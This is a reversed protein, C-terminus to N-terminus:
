AARREQEAVPRLVGDRGLQCLQGEVVYRAARHDHMSDPVYEARHIAGAEDRVNCAIPCALPLTGRYAVRRLLDESRLRYTM